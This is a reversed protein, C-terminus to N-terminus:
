INKENRFIIYLGYGFYNMAPFHSILRRIKQKFGTVGSNTPIFEVRSKNRELFKIVEYASLVYRLDDDPKEYRGTQETFNYSVTRFNYVGFVRLFYDYLRLIRFYLKYFWDRGRVANPLSLPFDLNPGILMGRGEPKLVRLIELLSKKPEFFHEVVQNGFVFDFYNDPFPLNRCSAKIFRTGPNLEAAKKLAYDSIDVGTYKIDKRLYSFIVGTGCGVELFYGGLPVYKDIVSLIKKSGEAEWSKPQKALEYYFEESEKFM